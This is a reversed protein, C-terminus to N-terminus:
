VIYDESLAYWNHVRKLAKLLKKIEKADEDPDHSFVPIDQPESMLEYTQKLSMRVFNDMEDDPIEIIIDM